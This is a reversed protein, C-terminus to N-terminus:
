FYRGAHQGTMPPRSTPAGQQGHFNNQSTPPQPQYQNSPPQTPAQSRASYGTVISGKQQSPQQQLQIPQHVLSPRIQSQQQINYKDENFGAKQNAHELQQQLPINSGHPSAMYGAPQQMRQIAYGPFQEQIQPKQQQHAYHSPYSSFASQSGPTYKGPSKSSSYGGSPQQYSHGPQNPYNVQSPQGQPFNTGPKYETQAPHSYQSHQKAVPIATPIMKAQEGYQQYVSTPPPSPSRPRKIGMPIIAQQTPRYLTPRGTISPGHQLLVSPSSAQIGHHPYAQQLSLLESQEKIQARKRTEDEQHLVKKLQSFLEHKEQKLSELKKELQQIQEKTQELTLSDEEEKKKRLEREKREQEKMADQELEQKKKERERVIHRKLAQYMTKTMKPREILAPM